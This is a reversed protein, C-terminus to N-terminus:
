AAFTSCLLSPRVSSRDISDTAPVEHHDPDPRHRQPHLRWPPMRTVLTHRPRQPSFTAGRRFGPSAATGRTSVETPLLRMSRRRPSYPRDRPACIARGDHGAPTLPRHYRYFHPIGAPAVAIMTRLPWWLADGVDMRLAWEIKSRSCSHRSTESGASRATARLAARSATRRRFWLVGRVPAHYQSGDGAARPAIL